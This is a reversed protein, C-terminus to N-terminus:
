ILDSPAPGGIGAWGLGNSSGLLELFSFDQNERKRNLKRKETRVPFLTEYAYQVCVLQMIYADQICVIHMNYAYYIYVEHM